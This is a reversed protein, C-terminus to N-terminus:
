PKLGATWNLTVELPANDSGGVITNVLFKQGNSAVAVNYPQNTSYGQTHVAFLRQPVGPVPAGREDGITVAMLGDRGEYYLERSDGRWVAGFGGRRSIQVREGARDFPQVFVEAGGSLVMTFALWRGDPSVRAQPAPGFQNRVLVRQEAPTGVRQIWVEPRPPSSTFVLYRGDRTIDRVSVDDATEVSVPEAVGATLLWLGQTPFNRYYLRQSDPAWLPSRTGGSFTVRNGESRQSDFLWLDSKASDVHTISAAVRNGDPALAFDDIVAAPGITALERGGRDVWTLQHIVPPPRDVVLTGAASVAFGSPGTSTGPSLRDRVPQPTGVLALSDPDFRQAVLGRPTATTTLLWGDLYQAGGNSETVQTRAPDDISVVWVVNKLGPSLSLFLVRRGDPLFWPSAHQYEGNSADLTTVPAATGGSDAVRLLGGGRPAFVIVGNSGWTANTSFSNTPTGGPVACLRRLPTGDLDSRYLADDKSFGLSGTITRRKSRRRSRDRSRSPKMSQFPVARSANRSIKVTLSNM